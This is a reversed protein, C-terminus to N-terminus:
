YHALAVGEESWVTYAVTTPTVFKTVFRRGRGKAISRAARLSGGGYFKAGANPGVIITTTTDM